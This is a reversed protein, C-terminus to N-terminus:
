LNSKTATPAIGTSPRSAPLTAPPPPFEGARQTLKGERLFDKDVVKGLHEWGIMVPSQNLPSLRAQRYIEEYVNGDFRGLTSKLEHDSFGMGDTLAVCEPRIEALLVQVRDTAVEAVDVDQFVGMWDGINERIQMLISLELLKELVRRTSPETVNERISLINNRAFAYSTHVESARYCRVAVSNLAQDFSMGNAQQAAFAKELNKAFRSARDKLLNILLDLDGSTLAASPVATM